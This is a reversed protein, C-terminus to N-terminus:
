RHSNGVFMVLSQEQQMQQPLLTSNKADPAIDRVEITYVNGPAPGDLIRANWRQLFNNLQQIQATEKFVIMLVTGSPTPVATDRPDSTTVTQYIALPQEQNIFWMLVATQALLLVALVASVPTFWPAQPLYDRWNAWWPSNARTAPQTPATVSAATPHAEREIRQLLKGLRQPTTDVATIDLLAHNHRIMEVMKLERQYEARLGADHALMQEVLSRELADLKGTIYWPLLLRAEEVPNGTPTQKMENSWVCHM